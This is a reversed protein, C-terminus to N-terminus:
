NLHFKRIAIETKTKERLYTRHGIESLGSEARKKNRISYAFVPAFCKENAGLQQM